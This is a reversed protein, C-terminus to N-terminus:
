ALHKLVLCMFTAIPVASRLSDLSIDWPLLDLDDSASAPFWALRCCALPWCHTSGLMKLSFTRHAQDLRAEAVLTHCATQFISVWNNTSVAGARHLLLKHLWLLFQCLMTKWKSSSSMGGGAGLTNSGKWKDKNIPTLNNSLIYYLMQVREEKNKLKWPHACYYYTSGFYELWM